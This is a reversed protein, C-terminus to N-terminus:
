ILSLEMVPSRLGMVPKQTGDDKNWKISQIRSNFFHTDNLADLRFKSDILTYFNEGHSYYPVM